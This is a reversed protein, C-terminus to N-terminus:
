LWILIVLYGFVHWKSYSRGSFFDLCTCPSCAPGMLGAWSVVSCWLWFSFSLLTWSCILSASPMELARRTKIRVCCRLSPRSEAKEFALLLVWRMSWLTLSSRVKLSDFTTPWLPFISVRWRSKPNADEQQKTRSKGLPGKRSISLLCCM